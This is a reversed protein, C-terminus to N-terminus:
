SLLRSSPRGPPPAMDDLLRDNSGARLTIYQEVEKVAQPNGEEGDLEMGMQGIDDVTLVAKLERMPDDQLVKLFGLKTYTNELLYECAEDFRIALSTSSLKLHQGLAYCEARLLMDELTHRLRKRREQNERGRDALIRTLDSNTGDDNLRIFKNTKLWTRLEQFFTNDDPLKIVAQGAVGESSKNICGAEKLQDYDLDLPSVVEVRLDSEYRGDLTHGDLYRGISYDTKNIHYRYKNKDKLLDKFILSALEKNEDTSAIDTAKIKRTIDREENTLFLFEDGNRTILSEKELRHLTEEIRKRLALKDEDIKEISLTVLNDLTGKILDVYRIMFLTRLIQVDFADLSANESAQDITRKVATDLFGEVSRYFAHMPVLAGIEKGAVSMAAMQFADLMSREGYALHAGTAGVKRIEEFVKQM